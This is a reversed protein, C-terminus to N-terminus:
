IEFVFPIFTNEIYRIFDSNWTFVALVPKTYILRERCFDSCFCTQNKDAGCEKRNTKVEVHGNPDNFESKSIIISGIPIKSPDVKLKGEREFIIKEFPVKQFLPIITTEEYYASADVDLLFKNYQDWNKCTQRIRRNPISNYLNFSQGDLNLLCFASPFIFGHRCISIDGRKVDKQFNYLCQAYDIVNQLIKGETNDCHTFLFKQIFTMMAGTIHKACSDTSRRRPKKGKCKRISPYQNKGSDNAVRCGRTCGNNGQCRCVSNEFVTNLFYELIQSKNETLYPASAESRHGVFIYFLCIICFTIKRILFYM